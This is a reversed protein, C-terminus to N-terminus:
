RRRLRKSAAAAGAGVQVEQSYISHLTDESVDFRRALAAFWPVASLPIALASLIAQYTGRDM